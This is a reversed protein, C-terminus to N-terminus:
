PLSECARGDGDGDMPAGPHADLWEQAEAQTSFDSCHREGSRPNAGGSGGGAPRDDDGAFSAPSSLGRVPRRARRVAARIQREYRVNPPITLQVAYGQEALMLNFLRGDQLRLDVLARGYRDRPEVGLTYTVKTGPRLVRKAFASAERGYCEAGNYVEPTDVGILRAKGIGSLVVTDGDSVRVVRARTGGGASAGAADDEGGTDVACGTAALCLALLSLVLTPRSM